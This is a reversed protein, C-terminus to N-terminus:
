FKLTGPVPCFWTGSASATTSTTTTNAMCTCMFATYNIGDVTAEFSLTGTFGTGVIQVAALSYGLTSVQTGTGTAAANRQLTEQRPSQAWAPALIELCVGLVLLGLVPM